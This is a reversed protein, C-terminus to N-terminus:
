ELSARQRLSGPEASTTSRVPLSIPLGGTGWRSGSRGPFQREPIPEVQTAGHSGDLLGQKLQRCWRANRRSFERRSGSGGDVPPEVTRLVGKFFHPPRGPDLSSPV